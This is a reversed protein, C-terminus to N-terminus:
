VTFGGDIAIAQGTIYTNNDSVLFEVLSAIEEPQAMRALPVQALMNSLQEDNLSAATLETNTFGPCVANVLINHHAFELALAKTQGILGSKTSSYLSRQAKSRIGWVSSINVIKGANNAKMYSTAYKAILLPAQLNVQNILRMDNIDVDDTAKIINIGANNIVIDFQYCCNSFFNKISDPDSLDMEQRCPTVVVYDRSLRDAIAKGIGRSAGTILVTKKASM